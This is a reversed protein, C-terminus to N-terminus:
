NMKLLSLEAMSQVDIRYTGKGIKGTAKHNKVTLPFDTEIEGFSSKADVQVDASGPWALEVDGFTTSVKWNGGVKKSAIDVSGSVAAAEITSLANRATLDGNTIKMELPGTIQNAEVNGNTLSITVSAEADSVDVNGNVLHLSIDNEIGSAEINGNVTSLKIKGTNSLKSLTLNGNEEKVELAAKLKQPLTVTLNISPYHLNGYPESYTKIELKAGKSVRMGTKDAARKAEEKSAQDVDVTMHIEIDKVNGEQIDITGNTNAISVSQTSSPVNVRTTGKDFSYGGLSTRTVAQSSVTVAAATPLPKSAPVPASFEFVSEVVQRSEAAGNGIYFVVTAVTAGTLLLKWTNKM